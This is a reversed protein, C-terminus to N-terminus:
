STCWDNYGSPLDHEIAPRTEVAPIDVSLLRDCADDVTGAVCTLWAPTACFKEGPQITKTWHGFERDAYGGALVLDDYRRAFELQWSTPCAVRAGWVVGAETDEILATPFWGRVPM